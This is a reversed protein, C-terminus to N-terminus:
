ECGLEEMLELIMGSLENLTDTDGGLFDPPKPVGDCKKYCSSLQGCAGEYDEVNILDAATDLM